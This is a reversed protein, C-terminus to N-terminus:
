GGGRRALYELVKITARKDLPRNRSGCRPSYICSPCGNECPCGSVLRLAEQVVRDIASFIADTLGAGGEIEDFLIITPAQTDPHFPTSVGGLDDRDCLVSLPAMAILAHEAGHLGGLLDERPVGPIEGPFTIWMGDTEYTHSPLELPEVALTRGSYISQYGIFEQRVRVRGNSATFGDGSFRSGTSLIEVTSTILPKTYYDVDERRVRAVGQELNLSEVVYTEGRHLLVAGPYADRRARLPDMTELLKGDCILKVREGALDDLSFLEHARKLGRYVYGRPTSSLLGREELAPVIEKGLPSIEGEKLPLEAAACAVHGAVLRPNDPRIVIRERARGLLHDPHRLLYRDLPDEYPIFIVLSPAEGRGARGAQQWFSLVSGPFGLIIAADLGGIDIGAELASTSVVGRIEGNRLGAEIERRESPLYGARYPLIGRAGIDAARRAVLEAQARSRTFCITQIGEGTIHALIRAAQLYLPTGPDALGDWFVITRKGRGAGSDTIAVADRGTLDRAYAAPNAISASSLVVQPSAGYHGLIRFLRRLLLAVNAGFVGRYTHAEDIVIFRLNRFFRAWQHHWPLYYHLAHPNTLIIRSLGRIRGRQGRPTDGDYTAPHLEIGLHRELSQLKGLQDNALAKLPYIYLACASDDEIMREFIPINFALTKGSATPTTIIVDKGARLAAITEGQHRYLTIGQEELYGQIRPHLDIQAPQSSVAPMSAAHAIQGRYWPEDALGDIIGNM